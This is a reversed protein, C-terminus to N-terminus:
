FIPRGRSAASASAACVTSPAALITSSVPWCGPRNFSLTALGPPVVMAPRCSSSRAPTRPAKMVATSAAVRRGTASPLGAHAVVRALRDPFNQEPLLAPDLLCWEVGTRRTPIINHVQSPFLDIPPGFVTPRAVLGEALEEIVRPEVFSCRDSRGVAPTGADI